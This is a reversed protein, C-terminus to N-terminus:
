DSRGEDLMEVESESLINLASKPWKTKPGWRPVEHEMRFCEVIYGDMDLEPVAWTSALYTYDDMVPKGDEYITGGTYEWDNRLGASACEPKRERILRAAKNWDFVMMERGRNSEGMTFAVWTNM